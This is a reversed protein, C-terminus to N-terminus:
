ENGVTTNATVYVNQEWVVGFDEERIKELLKYRDIISGPSEPGPSSDLTVESNVPIISGM